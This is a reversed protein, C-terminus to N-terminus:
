ILRNAVYYGNSEVAAIAAERDDALMADDFGVTAFYRWELSRPHSPLAADPSTPLFLIPGTGFPGGDETVFVNLM